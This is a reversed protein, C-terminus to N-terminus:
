IIRPTVLLVLVTRESQADTGGGLPWANPHVVGRSQRSNTSQEFGAVVLTHGPRLKVKQLIDRSAVAPIELSQDGGPVGIQRIETIDSLTAQLQLIIDHNDTVVPLLNVALGTIVSSTEITTQSGADAVLQTQIRSIYPISDTFQVTVPQSSMTIAPITNGVAVEGQSSLANLIASSGYLRSSADVVSVSLANQDVSSSGFSQVSAGYSGLKRYVVNWDIGYNSGTKMRVTVLKAEIAVQRTMRENASRIFNEVRDLTAPPATVTVSGLAPSSVYSDGPGLSTRLAEAVTAFIDLTAQMSSSQQSQNQAGGSQGGGSQGGGANSVSNRIASEGPSATVEFTRTDRYFILLDNGQVRWSVGMRASVHDMLGALDGKYDLYFSGAPAEVGGSTSAGAAARMAATPDVVKGAVEAADPMVQVRVGYGQVVYEAFKQLSVPYVPTGSVPLSLYAPREDRRRSRVADGGLWLEGTPQWYGDDQERITGLDTTAQAAEQQVTEEVHKATPTMACGALTFMCVCLGAVFSKMTIDM